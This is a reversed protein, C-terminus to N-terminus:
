RARLMANAVGLPGRKELKGSAHMVTVLATSARLRAQGERDKRCTRIVVVPSNSGGGIPPYSIRMGDFCIMCFESGSITTGHEFGSQMQWPDTVLSTSRFAPAAASHAKCCSAPELTIGAKLSTGAGGGPVVIRSHIRVAEKVLQRGKNASWYLYWHNREVCCVLASSWEM